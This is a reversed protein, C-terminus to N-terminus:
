GASGLRDFLRTLTLRTNANAALASIAEETAAICRMWRAPPLHVAAEAASERDTYFCLPANETRSLLILDRLALRFVGLQATLEERGQPFTLMLTLLAAPSGRDSLLRCVGAANERYQLLTARDAGGIHRLAAGISGGSLRLIGEAEEPAERFLRAAEPSHAILYERMERESVPQTRYVPARSRITELLVMADTALLLFLVYQPPEELTLLLANQAQVTMTDADEIIYIKVDLDNPVTRVSERVGRVAEVGLTAKGPARAIRLIDPSLDNGIKRCAECEGCPLPLAPDARKECAAAMAIERAFTRRGSGAKGELILAHPLRGALLKPALREKLLANGAVGPFIEKM